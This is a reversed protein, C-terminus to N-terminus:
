LVLLAHKRIVCTPSRTSLVGLLLHPVSFLLQRSVSICAAYGCQRSPSSWKNWPTIQVRLAREFRETGTVAPAAVEKGRSMGARFTFYSYQILIILTILAITLM